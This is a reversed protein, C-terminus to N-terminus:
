DCELLYLERLVQEATPTPSFLLLEYLVDAPIRKQRPSGHSEGGRITLPSFKTDEARDKLQPSVILIGQCVM